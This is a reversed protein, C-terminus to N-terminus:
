RSAEKGRDICRVDGCAFLIPELADPRATGFRAAITRRRAAHRTAFCPMADRAISSSACRGPATKGPRRLLRRRHAAYGYIMFPSRSSAITPRHEGRLITAIASRGAPDIPLRRCRVPRRGPESAPRFSGRTSRIAGSAWRRSAPAYQPTSRANLTRTERSQARRRVDRRGSDGGPWAPSRSPLRARRLSSRGRPSRRTSSCACRRSATSRLVGSQFAVEGHAGPSVPAKSRREKWDASTAAVPASARIGASRPADCAVLASGYLPSGKM